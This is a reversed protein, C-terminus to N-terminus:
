VPAAHVPTRGQSTSNWEQGPVTCYHAKNVGSVLRISVARTCHAKNVSSVLRISVARTCHAKNVSSVCTDENVSFKRGVVGM